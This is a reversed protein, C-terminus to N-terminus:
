ALMLLSTYVQNCAYFAVTLTDHLFSCAVEAGPPVTLHKESVVCGPFDTKKPNAVRLVFQGTLMSIVILDGALNLFLYESGPFNWFIRSNSRVNLM